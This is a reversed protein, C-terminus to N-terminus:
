IEFVGPRILHDFSGSGGRADAAQTMTVSLFRFGGVVCFAGSIHKSALPNLHLQSLKGQVLQPLEIGELIYMM